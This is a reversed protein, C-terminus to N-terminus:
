PQIHLLQNHDDALWLTPGATLLAMFGYYRPGVDIAQVIKRAALDVKVLVPQGGADTGVVWANNGDLVALENFDNSNSFGFKAVAAGDATISAAATGTKPDMLYLGKDSVTWFGGAGFGIPAGPYTFTAGFKGSAPSFQQLTTNNVEVWLADASAFPGNTLQGSPLTFATIQKTKVDVRSLTDKADITWVGGQFVALACCIDRLKLRDTVQNTKPDVWSITASQSNILWLADDTIAMQAPEQGIGTTLTAQTQGSAPDVRYLTDGYIDVWLSGFGMILGRLEKFSTKSVVEKGYPDPAPTNTPPATPTPAPTPAACAALVFLLLVSSQGIRSSPIHKIHM